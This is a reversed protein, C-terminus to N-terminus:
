TRRRQGRRWWITRPRQSTTAKGTPGTAAAELWNLTAEDADVLGVTPHRPLQPGAGVLEQAAKAWRKQADLDGTQAALSTQAVLWRFRSDNFWGGRQRADVAGLLSRAERRSPEDNREILLEALSLEALGTTANLTPHEALLTRYHQEAEGGRGGRKALDGLHERASAADLSEPHDSIVRLFLNKAAEFEGADVLALGKIRVYQPHNSARARRLREEFEVQAKDDWEPDRFWDSAVFAFGAMQSVDPSEFEGDM